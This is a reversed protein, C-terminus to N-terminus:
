ALRFAGQGRLIEAELAEKGPLRQLERVQQLLAATTVPPWESRCAL